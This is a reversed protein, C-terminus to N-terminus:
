HYKLSYFEPIEKLNDGLKTDFNYDYFINYISGLLKTSNAKKAKVDIRVHLLQNSYTDVFFFAEFKVGQWKKQEFNFKFSDLFPESKKIKKYSLRLCSKGNNDSFKEIVDPYNNALFCSTKEQQMFKKMKNIVTINKIEGWLGQNFNYYYMKKKELRWVDVQNSAFFIGYNKNDKDIINISQYFNNKNRRPLPIIKEDWIDFKKL